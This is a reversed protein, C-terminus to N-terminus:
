GETPVWLTLPGKRSSRGYTWLEQSCDAAPCDSAPRSEAAHELEVVAGGRLHDVSNRTVCDASNECLVGDVISEINIALRTDPPSGDPLAQTAQRLDHEDRCGRVVNRHDGTVSRPAASRTLWILRAMSMPEINRSASPRAKPAAQSIPPQRRAVTGASMRM